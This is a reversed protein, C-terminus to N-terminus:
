TSLIRGLFSGFSNPSIYSLITWLLVSYRCKCHSFAITPSISLVDVTLPFTLLMKSLITSTTVVSTSKTASSICQSWYLRSSSFLVPTSFAVVFVCVSCCDVMLSCVGVCWVESSRRRYVIISKWVRKLEKIDKKKTKYHMLGERLSIKTHNGVNHPLIHPTCFCAKRRM